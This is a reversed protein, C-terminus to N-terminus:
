LLVSLFLSLSSMRINENAGMKRGLLLIVVSLCRGNSLCKVWTLLFSFWKYMEEYFSSFFYTFFHERSCKQFKCRTHTSLTDTWGSLNDIKECVSPCFVRTLCLPRRTECVFNITRQWAIPIPPTVHRVYFRSNWATDLCANNNCQRHFKSHM